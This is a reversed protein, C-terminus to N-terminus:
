PARPATAPPPPNAPGRRRRIPDDESVFVEECADWQSCAYGAVLTAGIGIAWKAGRSLKRDERHTEGFRSRPDDRSIEMGEPLDRSGVPKGSDVWERVPRNPDALVPGMRRPAPPSAPPPPSSDEGEETADEGAFEKKSIPACDIRADMDTPKWNEPNCRIDNGCGVVWLPKGNDRSVAVATGAHLRKAKSMGSSKGMGLCLPPSDKQLTATCEAVPDMQRNLDQPNSGIRHFDSASVPKPADAGIALTVSIVFFM